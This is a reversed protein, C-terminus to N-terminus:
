MLRISALWQLWGSYQTYPVSRIVTTHLKHLTISATIITTINHCSVSDQKLFARYLTTHAKM